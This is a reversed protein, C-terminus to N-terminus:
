APASSIRPWCTLTLLWVEALAEADRDRRVLARLKALLLRVTTM